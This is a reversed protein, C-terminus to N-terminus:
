RSVLSNLEHSWKYKVKFKNLQDMKILGHFQMQGILLGRSIGAKAAFRPIKRWERANLTKFENIYEEPIIISQAFENAEIEEDSDQCQGEIFIEGEESHMLLHGIEHFLTFWFHDDSLYRASMLLVPNGQNFFTAGNAACGDPCKVLSFLVGSKELISKLKPLFIQPDKILTLDRIDSINSKLTRKCWRINTYGAEIKGKQLWVVTPELKSDFSRSTRFAVSYLLDNYDRHWAKVSDVKFFALCNQLKEEFKRTKPVWGEKSMSSYPINEVWRQNEAKLRKQYQADRRIWFDKTSGLIQSFSEALDINIGKDGSIIEDLVSESISMKEALDNLHIGKESLIDKITDGPSSLWDPNFDTITSMM